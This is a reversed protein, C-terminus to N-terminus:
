RDDDCLCEHRRHRRLVTAPLMIGRQKLARSIATSPLMPNDLADRIEAALKKDAAAIAVGAGCAGGARMTLARAEDSLSM